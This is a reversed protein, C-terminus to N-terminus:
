LPQLFQVYTIGTVAQKFVNLSTDLEDFCRSLLDDFLTICWADVHVFGM